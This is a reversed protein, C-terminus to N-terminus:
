YKETRGRGRMYVLFERVFGQMREGGEGQWQVRAYKVVPKKM